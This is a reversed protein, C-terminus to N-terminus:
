IRVHNPSLGPAGIAALQASSWWELLDTGSIPCRTPREAQTSPRPRLAEEITSAPRGARDAGAAVAASRQWGARCHIYIGASGSEIWKRRGDAGVAEELQDVPLHGFDVLPLRTEAIGYTSGVAAEILRERQGPRYESDDVLNLM